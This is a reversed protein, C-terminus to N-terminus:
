SESEFGGKIILENEKCIYEKFEIVRIESSIDDVKILVEQEMEYKCLANVLEKVKM